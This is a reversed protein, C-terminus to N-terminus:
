FIFPWYWFAVWISKEKIIQSVCGCKPQRLNPISAKLMQINESHSYQNRPLFNIGPNKSGIICVLWSHSARYVRKMVLNQRGCKERYWQAPLMWYLANEEMKGGQLQQPDLSSLLGAVKEQSSCTWQHLLESALGQAPSSEWLILCIAHLVHESRKPGIRGTSKTGIGPSNSLGVTGANIVGNNQVAATLRIGWPFM